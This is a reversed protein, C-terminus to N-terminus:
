FSIWEVGREGVGVYIYKHGPKTIIVQNRCTMVMWLPKFTVFQACWLQSFFISRKFCLNKSQLFYSARFTCSSKPLWLTGPLCLWALLTQLLQDLEGDAPQVSPTRSGLCRSVFGPLFQRFQTRICCLDGTKYKTWPCKIVPYSTRIVSDLVQLSVFGWKFVFYIFVGWWAPFNFPNNWRKALWSRFWWWFKRDRIKAYVNKM